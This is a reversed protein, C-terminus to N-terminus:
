RVAHEHRFGEGGGFLLYITGMHGESGGVNTRAALGVEWERGRAAMRVHTSRYIGSTDYGGRLRLTPDSTWSREYDIGGTLLLRFEPRGSEFEIADYVAVVSQGTGGLAGSVELGVLLRLWPLPLWSPGGRAGLVVGTRHPAYSDALGEEFTYGNDLLEHWANQLKSGGYDGSLVLGLAPGFTWEFPGGAHETLWGLEFTLEDTRRERTRAVMLRQRARLSFDDHEGVYDARIGFDHTFGLDDGNSGYLQDNSWEAGGRLAAHWPRAEPVQEAGARAPFWSTCLPLWAVLWSSNWLGARM